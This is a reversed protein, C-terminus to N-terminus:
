AMVAKSNEIEVGEKQPLSNDAPKYTPVVSAVAIKVGDNDKAEVANKLIELKKKLEDMSDFFPEGIFIKNHSTKKLGEENMLLEEYLKEGPRLGTIKIKIDVDPRLGSLKILNVALDYIKVPEGMDLVFIEGGKAYAAAQLVLQAAEPITMFFRTIEKHTVTIPGGNKIQTKFRPVVSGNSNLVNGFRVAVFETNKSITQMAQVIMECVRKTAGMVNTPNVAKDTSILVFKKVEFENACCATNYTGFVNNKVAESPNDEMLPVHKHAAAHFVMYPKYKGFIERMRERDRVSAIVIETNLDPFKDYLENQLDFANNEYIDVVILKEPMFRAIQRCLESGISGGGGTVMVIQGSVYGIISDIDVSVPTRGLLDEPSIDQLQHLNIEGSVIQQMGPIKKINCGTKQCILLIDKLDKENIHQMAIIIQDIHYLHAAQVIFNRNGVVKVGQVYRGLKSSDDDILCKVKWFFGRGEIIEKLVDNAAEGAGIVMVNKLNGSKSARFQNLHYRLLRYLFRSGIIWMLLLMGYIPYYSRPMFGGTMKIVLLYLGTSVMCAVVINQFESVGAYKWLSQYLHFLIFVGITILVQILFYDSMTNLFRVEIDDVRLNYRLLLAGISATWVALVDYIVLFARRTWLIKDFKQKM